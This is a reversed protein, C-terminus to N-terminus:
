KPEPNIRRVMRLLEEERICGIMARIMVAFDSDAEVEICNNEEEAAVNGYSCDIVLTEKGNSGIHDKYIHCWPQWLLTSKTSM